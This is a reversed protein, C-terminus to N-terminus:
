KKKLRGEKTPKETHTVKDGMTRWEENKRSDLNDKNEVVKQKDTRTARSKTNENMTKM